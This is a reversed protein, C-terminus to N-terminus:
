RKRAKLYLQDGYGEESDGFILLTDGRLLGLNVLGKVGIRVDSVRMQITDGKMTFTGSDVDGELSGDIIGAWGCFFASDYNNWRNGQLSYSSIFPTADCKARAKARTPVPRGGMSVLEYRDALEGPAATEGIKAKTHSDDCALVTLVVTLGIAIQM